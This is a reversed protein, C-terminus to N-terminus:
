AKKAFILKDGELFGIPQGRYLILGSGARLVGFLTEEGEYEIDKPTAGIFEEPVDITSFHVTFNEFNVEEVAGDDDELAACAASVTLKTPCIVNVGLEEFVRGKGIDTIRAFIKPVKFTQRALESVMINVDDRATVAFLADCTQIGARKLVDQDIAVGTTTFGGFKAPLSDFDAENGDVVSVDHGRGDLTEALASGVMGCGIILVNM